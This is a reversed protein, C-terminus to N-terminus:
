IGAASHVSSGFDVKMGVGGALYLANFSEAFMKRALDGTCHTPCLRQVGHSKLSVVLGEMADNDSESLHFGGMLLLIDKGLMEQARAVIMDIGPHACGTIVILGEETDIVLAQEGIEGMVGTSYLNVGIKTPMGDIVSLKRVAGRLDRLYLKSLSDPAVIELHPALEIVSDLGGIHDWHPHSVFLMEVSAPDLGMQEMNQLLVRGNSGTDFLVTQGAMEILCAFGWLSQLGPNCPYNDFVINLRIGRTDPTTVPDNMTCMYEGLFFSELM